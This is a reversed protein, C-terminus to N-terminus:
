RGVEGAHPDYGCEDVDDPVDAEDEEIETGFVGAQCEPCIGSILQERETPTLDPMARQILEGGLWNGYAEFNVTVEHLDGCFPCTCVIVHNRM